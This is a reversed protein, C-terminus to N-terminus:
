KRKGYRKGVRKKFALDSREMESILAKANFPIFGGSALAKNAYKIFNREIKKAKKTMPYFQGTEVNVRPGLRDHVSHRIGYVVNGEVNRGHRIENAVGKMGLEDFVKGFGTQVQKRLKAEYYAKTTKLIKDELSM